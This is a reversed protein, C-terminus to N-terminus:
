TEYVMISGKWIHCVKNEVRSQEMKNILANKNHGM